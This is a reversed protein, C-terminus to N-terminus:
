KWSALEEVIRAVKRHVSAPAKVVMYTKTATITWGNADFDEGVLEKVTEVVKAPDTLPDDEVPVEPQYEDIPTYGSPHLNIDPGHFDTKTWTLHSIGYMRQFPKGLADAHTTLFVVNGEVKAELKYPSLLLDLVTAVTVDKVELTFSLSELDVGAKQIVDRKVHFNWSTSVRLFKVCEDLSAKEFKV